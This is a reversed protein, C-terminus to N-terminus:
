KEDATRGNAKNRWALPGLGCEKKFVTSFYSVNEFGLDFAIDSISQSTTALLKKAESIRCDNIYERLTLGTEKRFVKSLYNPTLFVSAAIDDRNIDERYNEHIYKKIAAAVGANEKKSNLKMTCNDYLANVYKIMDLSSRESRVNLQELDPIGLVTHADIENEELCALVIQMLDHHIQKILGVTHNEDAIAQNLLGGIYNILQEKNRSLLSNRILDRDLSYSSSEASEIKDASTIIKGNLFSCQNLQENIRRYEDYIHYFAIRDGIIFLPATGLHDGIFQKANQAKNVYYEASSQDDPM